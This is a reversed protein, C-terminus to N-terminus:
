WSGAPGIYVFRFDDSVDSRQDWYENLWDFSFFVPLQFAEYEPFERHLFSTTILVPYVHSLARHM